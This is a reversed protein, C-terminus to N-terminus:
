ARLALRLTGAAAVALLGALLILPRDSATKPLRTIRHSVKAAAPSAAPAAVTAPTPEAPEATNMANQTPPEVAPATTAEAVRMPAQNTAVSRSAIIQVTGHEPVYGVAVTAGEVPVLAEDTQPSVAFERMGKATHLVVESPTTMVVQGTAFEENPVTALPAAPGVVTLAVGGGSAAARSQGATQSEPGYELAFSPLAAVLVATFVVAFFTRNM